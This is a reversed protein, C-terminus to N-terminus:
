KSMDLKLGIRTLVVTANIWDLEGEGDNARFSIHEHTGDNFNVTLGNDTASYDAVDELEIQETKPPNKHSVFVTLKM